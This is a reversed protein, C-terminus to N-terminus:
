VRETQQKNRPPKAVALKRRLCEDFLVAFGSVDCVGPTFYDDLLDVVDREGFDMDFVGKDVFQKVILQRMTAADAENLESSTGTTHAIHIYTYIRIHVCM